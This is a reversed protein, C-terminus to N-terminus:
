QVEELANKAANAAIDQLRATLTKVNELFAPAAEFVARGALDALRLEDAYPMAHIVELGRLNKKIFDLEADDRIKNAVVYITDLHIDRALKETQLATQISRMGPEVVVLLMDIGQVTARGLHEVGAAMDVIIVDDTALILHALLAKLFTNEPCACGAGGKYISGLLLV